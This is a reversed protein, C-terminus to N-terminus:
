QRPSITPIGPPLEEVTDAELMLQRFEHDAAFVEFRVRLSEDKPLAIARIELRYEHPELEFSDAQKEDVFVKVKVTSGQEKRVAKLTLGARVIVYKSGEIPWDIVLTEGNDPPHALVWTVENHYVDRTEIAPNEWAKKGCRFRGKVRPCVREEGSSTRRTVTTKGLSSSLSDRFGLVPMEYLSVVSQDPFSKELKATLTDFLDGNPKNGHSTFGIVWIRKNKAQSVPDCRQCRLLAEFPFRQTGKGIGKLHIWQDEHWAPVVMVADGDQFHERVYATAELKKHEGDAVGTPSTTTEQSAQLLVLSLAVVVALIATAVLRTISM